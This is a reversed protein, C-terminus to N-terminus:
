KVRLSVPTTRLPNSENYENAIFCQFTAGSLDKTPAKVTLTATDTGAFVTKSKLLEARGMQPNKIVWSFTPEPKGKVEVTFTADQGAKVEVSVPQQAIALPVPADVGLVAPESYVTGAANSIACRYSDGSDTLSYYVSIASVEPGVKDAEPNSMNEFKSLDLDLQLKHEPDPAQAGLALVTGHFISWVKSEKRKRQWQFIAAPYAGNIKVEFGTLPPQNHPPLYWVKVTEPQKVITAVTFKQRNTPVPADDAQVGVILFLALASVAILLWLNKLSASAQGM